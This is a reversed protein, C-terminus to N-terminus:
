VIGWAKRTVADSIAPHKLLDWVAKILRREEANTFLIVTSFRPIQAIGLLYSRILMTNDGHAATNQLIDHFVRLLSVLHTPELSTKYVSPVGTPPIQQLLAWREETSQLSDWTRTFNFLTVPSDLLPIPKTSSPQSRSPSLEDKAIPSVSQLSISHSKHPELSVKSVPSQDSTQTSPSKIAGPHDSSPPQTRNSVRAESSTSPSTNSSPTPASSPKPRTDFLTHQGNSRFIGGGPRAQQSDRAKKAEKFTSPKPTGTSPNINIPSIDAGELPRSSVATMLGEKPSISDRAPEHTSASPVPDIDIIKIPVRRRTTATSASVPIEVPTKKKMRANRDHIAQTVKKLEQRAAENKPDLQLVHHFDSEAGELNALTARAQGRRFWGKANKSDLAIVCACDREADENKGLKLYAAARNLPYTANGPEAIIAATYHGIAAVFDGSKFAANGKEKAGQGSM